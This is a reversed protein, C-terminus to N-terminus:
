HTHFPPRRTPSPVGNEGLFIVRPKLRWRRVKTWPEQQRQLTAEESLFAANISVVSAFSLVAVTISLAVSNRVLRHRKCGNWATYERKTEADANKLLHQCQVHHACDNRTSITVTLSCIVITDKRIFNPKPRSLRRKM